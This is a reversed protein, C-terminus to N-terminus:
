FPAFTNAIMKMDPFRKGYDQRLTSFSLIYQINNALIVFMYHKTDLSNQATEVSQPNDEPTKLGLDAYSYALVIEAAPHGQYQLDEKRSEIVYGAETLLATSKQVLASLTQGQEQPSLAHAVLTLPPPADQGQSNPAVTLRLDTKTTSTAFSWEDGPKQLSFRWRYDMYVQKENVNLVKVPAAKIGDGLDPARPFMRDMYFMRHIQLFTDRAVVPRSSPPVSAPMRSLVAAAGAFSTGKDAARAVHERAKDYLAGWTNGPMETLYGRLADYGLGVYFLTDAFATNVLETEAIDLALKFHKESEAVCDIAYGEPNTTTSLQLAPLAECMRVYFYGISLLALTKDTPDELKQSSVGLNSLTRHAKDFLALHGTEAGQNVLGEIYEFERTIEGALGVAPAAM